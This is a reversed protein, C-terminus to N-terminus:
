ATIPMVLQEMWLQSAIKRQTSRVSIDSFMRGLVRAVCVSM